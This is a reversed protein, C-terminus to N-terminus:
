EEREFDAVDKVFSMYYESELLNMCYWPYGTSVGWIVRACNKSTYKPTMNNVGFTNFAWWYKSPWCGGDWFNEGGEELFLNPTHYTLARLPCPFSLSKLKLPFHPKFTQFFFMGECVFKRKGGHGLEFKELKQLILFIDLLRLIWIVVKEM